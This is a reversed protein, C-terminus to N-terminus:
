VAHGHQALIGQRQEILPALHQSIVKHIVASDVRGYDPVLRHRMGAILPWSITTNAHKLDDSLKWGAEGIIEVCSSVALFTRRDAVMQEITMSGLLRIAEHGYDIMDQLRGVDQPELPM